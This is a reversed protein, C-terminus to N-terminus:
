EDLQKRLSQAQRALKQFYDTETIEAVQKKRKTDDIQIRLMTVEQRLQEERQQVAQVMSKVADAVAILARDVTDGERQISEMAQDYNGEAVLRAWHGLREVYDTMHRTRQSLLRIVRGALEPSTQVGALFDERCLHSLVTPGIASASASRPQDDVLALEGIAEGEGLTNLTIERGGEDVTFIRIKGSEIIYFADGPDGRRFLVEGDALEVRDMTDRLSEGEGSLIARSLTFDNM